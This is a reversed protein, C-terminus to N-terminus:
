GIHRLIAIVTIANEPGRWLHELPMKSGSADLVELSQWKAPAPGNLTEGNDENPLSLHTHTHTHTHFLVSNEALCPCACSIAQVYKWLRLPRHLHSFRSRNGISSRAAATSFGLGLDTALVRHPARNRLRQRHLTSDTFSCQKCLQM